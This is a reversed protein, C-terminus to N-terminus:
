HKATRSQNAILKELMWHLSVLEKEANALTKLALAFNDDEVATVIIKMATEVDRALVTALYHNDLMKREPKSSRGSALCSQEGGSEDRITEHPLAARGSM